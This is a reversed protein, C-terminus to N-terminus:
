GFRALETRSTGAGQHKADRMIERVLSAGRDFDLSDIAERLRTFASAGLLITLSPAHAALRDVAAFDRSQLLSHLEELVVHADSWSATADVAREIGAQPQHNLLQVAEERLLTLAAALQRLVREVDATPRNHRLTNEAAGALHMIRTAGLTGASGKLKHVRALLDARAMPDLLAVSTPLALDAYERLIQVLVTKFLPLDEGFMQQAVTSDISTM